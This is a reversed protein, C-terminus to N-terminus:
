VYLQPPRPFGGDAPRWLHLCHPHLNVYDQQAPHYQVVCEDPQFFIDKIACMEDWTPCRKQNRMTVSVHEWGGGNSVICYFSRQGVMVRFIGNKSDGTCGYIERERDYERYQELATLDRM